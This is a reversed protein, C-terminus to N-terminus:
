MLNDFLDLDADLDMNSSPLDLGALAEQALIGSSRRPANPSGFGGQAVDQDHLHRQCVERPNVPCM